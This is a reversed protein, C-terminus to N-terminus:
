CRVYIANLRYYLDDRFRGTDVDDVLPAPATSVVHIDPAHQELWVALRLQDHPPLQDVNRLILTDIGEDLRLPMGPEWIAAGDAPVLARLVQETRGRSGILLLNLGCARAIQCEVPVAFGDVVVQEAGDVGGYSWHVPSHQADISRPM